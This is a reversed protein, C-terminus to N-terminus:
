LLYSFTYVEMNIIVRHGDNKIDKNKFRDYKGNRKKTQANRCESNNM